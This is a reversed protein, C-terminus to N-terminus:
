PYSHPDPISQPLSSSSSKPPAQPPTYTHSTHCPPSPPFPFSLAPPTLYRRGSEGARKTNQERLYKRDKSTELRARDYRRLDEQVQDYDQPLHADTTETVTDSDVYRVLYHVRSQKNTLRLLYCPSETGVLSCLETAQSRGRAIFSRM